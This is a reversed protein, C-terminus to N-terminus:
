KTKPKNQADNEKHVMDLEILSRRTEAREVECKESVGALACESKAHGGEQRRVCDPKERVSVYVCVRLCLAYGRM